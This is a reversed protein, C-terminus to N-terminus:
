AGESWAWMLAMAALQILEHYLEGAHDRDYTLCRAVEGFEEALIVLKDRRDMDRSAPTHNGHKALASAAESQVDQLAPLM